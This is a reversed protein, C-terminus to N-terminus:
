RFASMTVGAVPSHRAAGSFCFFAFFKTCISSIDACMQLVSFPSTTRSAEAVMYRGTFSSISLLLGM